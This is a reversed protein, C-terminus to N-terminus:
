RALGWPGRPLARTRPRIIGDFHLSRLADVAEAEDIGISKALAQTSWYGGGQLELFNVIQFRASNLAAVELM